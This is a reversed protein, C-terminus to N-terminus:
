DEFNLTPIPAEEPSIRKESEETDSNTNAIQKPNDIKNQTVKTDASEKWAYDKFIIHSYDAAEIKKSKIRLLLYALAMCFLGVIFFAYTM